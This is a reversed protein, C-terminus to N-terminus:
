SVENLLVDPAAKGKGKRAERAQVLVYLAIAPYISGLLIMAAPIAEYMPLYAQVLPTPDIPPPEAAGLIVQQQAIMRGVAEATRRATPAALVLAFYSYVAVLRVIKAVATGIGLTIGWPKRRVLAIGAAIMCLNLVLGSALETWYYTRIKPDDLGMMSLDMSAAVQINQARPKSKLVERQAELDKKEEETAAKALAEEVSKLAAEQQAAVKAEQQKEVQKLMRGLLPLATIYAGM